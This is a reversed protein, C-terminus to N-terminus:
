AHMCANSNNFHWLNTVFITFFKFVIKVLAQYRLIQQTFYEFLFLQCCQQLNPM